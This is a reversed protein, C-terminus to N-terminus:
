NLNSKPYPIVANRLAIEKKNIFRSKADWLGCTVLSKGNLLSFWFSEEKWLINLINAQREYRLRVSSAKHFNEGTM